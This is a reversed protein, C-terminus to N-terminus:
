ELMPIARQKKGRRFIGDTEIWLMANHGAKAIAQTAPMM